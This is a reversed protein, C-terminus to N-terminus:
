KPEDAAQTPRKGPAMHQGLQRVILAMEYGVLGVDAEPGALVALCGGPGAATVFLFGQDMEILTQHVQGAGFHQAGGNALSAIGAALAALHDSDERSLTASWGIAFGDRSIIAAKQVHPSRTVLDDILWNLHSDTSVARQPLQESLNITM